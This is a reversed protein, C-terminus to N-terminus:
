KGCGSCKCNDTSHAWRGLMDHLSDPAEDDSATGNELATDKFKGPDVTSKCEKMALQLTVKDELCTPSATGCCLSTCTTSVVSGYLHDILTTTVQVM